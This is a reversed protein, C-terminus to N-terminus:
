RRVVKQQYERGEADKVRLVYVGAPLSKVNLTATGDQLSTARLTEVVRGQLDYLAVNAIGAGRLEVFLLDDTPNPYVTLATEDAIDTATHKARTEASPDTESTANEGDEYCIGFFFCLVGKAMVSARGTNREAITQLQAIQAPTLAYWNVHGGPQLSAFNQTEVTGDNGAGNDRLALKMAHFEAYNAMEADDANAVFPDAYGEVFRTETLSYPDAIPQAATHWQELATLDLATDSMLARVATYYTDSLSQRMEHPSLYNNAGATGGDTMESAEDDVLLTTYADMDSQFGAFTLPIFGGGCLTSTRPNVVARGVLSVNTTTVNGPFYNFSYHYTILQSGANYISYQLMNAFLNDAGKSPVGQWPSVTASQDIYIGYINRRHNGATIQLGGDTNGNNGTVRIGYDLTDFTNRYISNDNAGNGIVHIGTSTLNQNMGSKHFRNGEVKYGDCVNLYLGTNQIVYPANQLNFNCRTVTIYDISNVKIGIANNTFVARDVTVSYPDGTTNVEVATNFGYFSCTDSLSPPCGCDNPNFIYNDDCKVDLILGANEAYIGRNNPLVSNILNNFTCGKFTIDKVGNLKVHEAFSTNNYSFVNDNNVTFTCRVFSANYTAITGSLATYSYPNIEVARRNNRFVAESASIIGGTTTFNADSSLGTRIGCWANEITAGNKLEVKGQYQALQRKTRDGVVEIGQWMEGDCASTLTGGDVVLKGGPRVILRASSSCHLTGTITLTALSDVVITGGRYSDTSWTENSTITDNNNHYNQALSVARYANIRGAGVMGPYLNADQIPDATQKIIDQIDEPTLCRNVSKILACVGSVIPTSQSTGGWYGNYPWTVTGNQSHVAGMIRYGPACIDVEPYFSTTEINSFPSTHNDDFDTSSVVIVRSDEFGSFPYLRGGGCNASGNGAARVILTGNNLIEQEVANFYENSSCSTYYWSISLIEANLVTSAYLCAPLYYQSVMIKSKYGISAMSGISTEGQDVTEAALISAVSTGHDSTTTEQIGSYFDYPPDIKGQLELHQYDFGDDVVAIKITSDGRTIDWADAAQIKVLYWLWDDTINNSVTYNWMWDSPNYLNQPEYVRECLSFMGKEVSIREYLLEAKQTTVEYTHRLFPTKAFPFLPVINTVGYENLIANITTNTTAKDSSLLTTTDAFTVWLKDDSLVQGASFGVVFLLVTLPFLKKM